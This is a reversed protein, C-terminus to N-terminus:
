RKLKKFIYKSKDVILKRDTIYVIEYNDRFSGKTLNLSGLLATKNDFLALKLHMKKINKVIFCDIGNKKLYDYQLKNSNKVKTKDFFVTVKVNNHAAKVLLQGFKKSKVNYMAIDISSTSTEILKQMDLQLLARDEPMFYISEKAYLFVAFFLFSIVIKM